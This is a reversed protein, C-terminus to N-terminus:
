PMLQGGNVELSHGTIFGGHEDSALLLTPAVCEEPRGARGLPISAMLGQWKEPDTHRTHFATEIVGPALANVRINDGAVEKALGRTLTSVAGKSTAYMVAGGAGGTRAAISSVNVIAGGGRERMGPIVARCCQFLQRLNLDMISEYLEDTADEVASRGIMDGANNVLVDVGGWREVVEGVVREAAGPETLDAQVLAGEAGTATIADLVQQAAEASRNYHVAVRAGAAGFAEAVAAGIGTSGGTVLVSRGDFRLEM